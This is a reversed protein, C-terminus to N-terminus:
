VRRSKSAREYRWLRFPEYLQHGVSLRRKVDMVSIIGVPHRRVESTSDVSGGNVTRGYFNIECSWETGAGLNPCRIASINSVRRAHKVDTVSLFSLRGRLSYLYYQSHDFPISTSAVSTICILIGAYTPPSQLLECVRARM